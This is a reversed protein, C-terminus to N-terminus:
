KVQAPAYSGQVYKLPNKTYTNSSSDCNISLNRNATSENMDVGLIIIISM